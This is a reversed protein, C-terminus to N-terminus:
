WDIRGELQMTRGGGGEYVQGFSSDLVGTDALYAYKRKFPNSLTAGLKLKARDERFLPFIKSLKFTESLTPYGTINLNRPATGVTSPVGQSSMPVPAFAAENLYQTPVSYDASSPFSGNAINSSVINPRISGFGTPTTYGGFGVAIPFGSAYNQLGALQWGGLLLNARKLDWRRGKGFPTDYTWTLKFNQPQNFGALSYELRRNYFDQPVGYGTAGNSDQYGMTKSFTYAAIFGLGKGLHKTVTLQLSNYNSNTNYAYFNTVGYFQPYPLMAQAVSLNTPFGAYPIYQPHASVSDLLTNGLALNTAPSIDLENYGWMRTGHNGVYAGEVVMQYPLLYQVTFNYNQVYGPHNSNPTATQGANFNGDTPNTDPLTYSLNPFPQNLYMSPDQTFGTPSTGTPVSVNGNYGSTFGGYGWNQAIPPTNMMAYGMRVVIKNNVQYAIGFRPGIEGWYTSTPRNAFDLIGNLGGASPNPEGLNIYSMRNTREYFPTIVEWRFGVNVTLKPTVKIDDQFWTAHYPGRFGDNYNAIGHSANQVAGLMFSAFANGTQTSYGPLGTQEPNFNFDGADSNNTEDYRYVTYQYGFHFTHRGWIKTAEDKLVESGNAGGSYYGVGIKDITGGQYDLGSFSFRPFVTASTNEIGLKNAWNQNVTYLPAGNDNVFRNYGLSFTNILTPTITSTLSARGMNSPTLQDQWGTTPPGPVPLYDGGSINNRERYGQNYFVSVRNKDNIIQDVKIGIIHEDFFPQGSSLAQINRTMASSTPDVLGVKLIAATVPNIRGTPIINGPFVDRIVAGGPGVRTTSPDYIAGFEVPRGLADTGIVSGAQAQGSYSPSLMGSFDGTRYALPSLTTFGNNNLQSLKDHEYSSFWFTKNRGNYLKPIMVPGGATYGWNENRNVAKKAGLNNADFDENQLLEYASGHLANTGSKISFNAIATQGGNYEASVAGTQLKFDGVADLSPSMEDNNGGMLDARGLSIGDVMIEHSYQQGGNISGQFTSGVTGPLSDFIFEQIQRHGDSTFIPWSKFEEQNIYRGVEATGAELLPPTDSVTVQETVQGVELTINVTLVQAARLVVNDALSKRFGPSSVAITYTGEPIYPITYSGASTSTTKNEIKTDNNTVVIAAGPVVAGTSDLITGNLTATAGSQGWLNFLSATLCGVFILVFLKRSM